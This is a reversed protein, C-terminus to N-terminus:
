YYYTYVTVVIEHEEEVFIPRVQKVAYIKGHWTQGYSIELRCEIRDLEAPLWEASRIAQEIEAETTGRYPLQDLAHGSLRVPKM